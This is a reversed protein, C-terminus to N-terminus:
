LGSVSGTMATEAGSAIEATVHQLASYIGPDAARAQPAAMLIAALLISYFVKM